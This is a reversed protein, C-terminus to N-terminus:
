NALFFRQLVPDFRYRVSDGKAIIVEAKSDDEGKKLKLYETLLISTDKIDKWRIKKIYTALQAFNYDAKADTSLLKPNKILRSFDYCEKIIPFSKYQNALTYGKGRSKLMIISNNKTTIRSELDNYLQINFICVNNNDAHKYIEQTLEIQEKYMTKRKDGVLITEDVSILEGKANKLLNNFKPIDKKAYIFNTKLKNNDILWREINKKDIEHKFAYFRKFGQLTLIGKGVRNTGVFTLSGDMDETQLEAVNFWYYNFFNDKYGTIELKKHYKIDFADYWKKDKEIICFFSDTLKKKVNNRSTPLAILPKIIINYNTYALECIKRILIRNDRAIPIIAILDYFSYGIGDVSIKQAAITEKSFYKEMMSSMLSFLDLLQEIVITLNTNNLNLLIANKSNEITFFTQV